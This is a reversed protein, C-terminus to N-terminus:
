GIKKLLMEKYKNVIDVEDDTLRESISKVDTDIQIDDVNIENYKTIFDGLKECIGLMQNSQEKLEDIPHIAISVDLMISIGLFIKKVLENRDQEITIM